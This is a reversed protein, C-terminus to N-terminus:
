RSGTPMATRSRILRPFELFLWTAATAVAVSAAASLFYTLTYDPRAFLVLPSAAIAIWAVRALLPQRQGKVGLFPALIFAMVLGSWPSVLYAALTALAVLILRRFVSTSVTTAIGFGAAVSVVAVWGLFDGPVFGRWALWAGTALLPVSSRVATTWPIRQRFVALVAGLSLFCFMYALDRFTFRGVAGGYAILRLFSPLGAAFVILGYAVLGAAVGGLFNQTRLWVYGALGLIVLGIEVQLGFTVGPTATGFRVIWALLEIWSSSSIFDILPAKGHYILLDVVPVIVLVVSGLAFISRARKDDLKAFNRLILYLTTLLFIFYTSLDVFATTMPVLESSLHPLSFSEFFIRIVYFSAVLLLLCAASPAAQEIQGFTKKLQESLIVFWLKCGARRYWCLSHRPCNDGRVVGM